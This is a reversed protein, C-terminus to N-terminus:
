VNTHSKRPTLDLNGCFFLIRTRFSEQTRFGRANTVLSQIKANLGEAVANTIPHAAYTIIRDLHDRIMRAKKILPALQCRSAWGYWKKFFRRMGEGTTKHWIESFLEKIGWARAVKLAEKKLRQFDRSEERTMNRPNKLWSYKSGKLIDDGEKMLERHEQRRVQDVGENLHKSIHFKDHVICSDPVYAETSKRYAEWMDMAVAEVQGRQQQTLKEWLQDCAKTDRDFAVDMVRKGEIDTMVTVYQHGKLFSKEDLGVYKVSEEQRRGMGREVARKMMADCQDWSVNLLKCAESINAAAQLVRIAFAEFMETFRSNKEAWPVPILQTKGEEDKLRPVRAIILTQCQCTDLHRWTREQYGHIHMRGGQEDAWVEQGCEVRIEVRKEKVLLDVSVVKWPAEVGMLQSYFTKDDM